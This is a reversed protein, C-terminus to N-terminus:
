VHERYNNEPSENFLKQLRLQTIAGQEARANQIEDARSNMLRQKLLVLLQDASKGSACVLYIFGFKEQYRRNLDALEALVETAATAVQGQEHATKGGAKIAATDGIKAHGKCAELLEAEGGVSWLADARQILETMQTFPRAEALALAWSDCHCCSHLLAAADHTSLQNFENLTM